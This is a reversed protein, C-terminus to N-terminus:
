YSKQQVKRASLVEALLRKDDLYNKRAIKMERELIVDLDGLVKGLDDVSMGAYKGGDEDLLVRFQAVFPSRSTATRAVQTTFRTTASTTFRTTSFRTTGSGEASASLDVSGNSNGAGVVLAPANIAMNTRAAKKDANQQQQQKDNESSKKGSPKEESGDDSRDSSSGSGGSRKEVSDDDNSDEGAAKEKGGKEDDEENLGLALERSGVEAIVRSVELILPAFIQKPKLNKAKKIFAHKLLQDASPRDKPKKILCAALFSIFEPSWENPHALRPPPRTPIMFIARMPHINYHPPHGEAMEIATIGISWIDAKHDYDEQIVEPAMWFPTGIVTHHRTFDKVQGSVGFDALKAVGDENLLINGAKIDRHIRKKDHLHQLGKLSDRCIVSIQDETLTKKSITMIDNVSGPGCYEMVIWLKDCVPSLYSKTYAVIHQHMDIASMHDIERLMEDLDAEQEIKLEKLAFVEGSTKDESEM